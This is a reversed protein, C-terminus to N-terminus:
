PAALALLRGTSTGVYVTDSTIALDGAYQEGRWTRVLRGTLASLALLRGARGVYVHEGYLVPGVTVPGGLYTAWLPSTGDRSVVRLWGDTSGFYIAERGVAAANRVLGSTYYSKALSGDAARLIYFQGNDGGVTVYPDANVVPSLLPVALSQRWLPKGSAQSLACVEGRTTAVVLSQGVLAGQGSLPAQLEAVWQKRGALDFCYVKGADTGVYLREAPARPAEAAPRGGAAPLEYEGVQPTYRIAAQADFEWLRQGSRADIAHLVGLDSGFYLAHRDLLPSANFAEPKSFLPGSTVSRGDRHHLAVVHGDPWVVYVRAPGVTFHPIRSGPEEYVWYARDSRTPLLGILLYLVTALLAVAPIVLLQKQRRRRRREQWRVRYDM